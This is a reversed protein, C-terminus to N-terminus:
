AQSCLVEKKKQWELARGVTRPRAGEELGGLRGPFVLTRAIGCEQATWGLLMVGSVSPDGQQGPITPFFSPFVKFSLAPAYSLSLPTHLSQPPFFPNRGKEPPPRNLLSLLDGGNGHGDAAVM